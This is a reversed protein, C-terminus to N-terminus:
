KMQITTCNEEKHEQAEKRLIQYIHSRFMATEIEIM